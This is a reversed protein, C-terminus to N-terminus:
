LVVDLDGHGQPGRGDDVAADQDLTGLRLSPFAPQDERKGHWPREGFADARASGRLSDDNSLGRQAVPM